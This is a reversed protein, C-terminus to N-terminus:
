INFTRPRLFDNVWWALDPHDRLLGVMNERDLANFASKTGRM